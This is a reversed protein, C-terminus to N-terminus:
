KTNSFHIKYDEKNKDNSFDLELNNYLGEKFYQPEEKFLSKNIFTLEWCTLTNIKESFRAYNNAHVHSIYFYNKILKIHKLFLDHHLDIDHYEIVIGSIQEKKSLIEEIIRYEHGEIDIKLFFIENNYEKFIESFLITNENRYDSVFKQFFEVNNKKLFYKFNFYYIIQARFKSIPLLLKNFNALIFLIYRISFIFLFTSIINKKFVSLGISGDYMKISKNSYKLFDLEFSWDTNIGLSILHNNLIASKNVVYGGDNNRGVRILDNTIIPRLENMLYINM